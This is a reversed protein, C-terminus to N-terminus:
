QKQTILDFGFPLLFVALVWMPILLFRISNRAKYDPSISLSSYQIPLFDFGVFASFLFSKIILFTKINEQRYLMQFLLFFLQFQFYLTM